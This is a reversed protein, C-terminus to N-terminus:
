GNLARDFFGVVRREYERPQASFGGTHGGAEIRWIAKPERAAEFYAPTLDEGGQGRAAYILFVPRPAIQAVVNKLSPPPGTGSLVSLAASQVAEQPLAFWGRPGRLLHERISRVGAGESVVAHLGTNAAAAELLVEGGASFGMGGIRGDHVDPRRQLWAVAADIDKTAGWGFANADGDSGDYGRMDVLLVGFGHRALMSAQPVKGARTPFSIVAAGNLSPVYWAALDLGDATEITVAQFPRGLSVPEVHARPRHTVGIAVAVPLLLWYAALVTGLTLLARRLYRRGHRKRSRWLLVIGLACLVLGAPALFFGTWDEGRAGVARADMVALIAGELALVGLAIAITARGGARLRPYLLAAVVLVALSIAGRALHDRWSTGPEPVVASDVAAHVGIVATALAFVLQDV